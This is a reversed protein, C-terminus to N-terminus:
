FVRGDEGWDLASARWLRVNGDMSGTVMSRGDPFFAVERVPENLRLTGLEQGTAAQWFTVEGCPSAVVLTRGDPSFAVGWASQGNIKLEHSKRWTRTDYIFVTDGGGSVALMSSDASFAVRLPSRHDRLVAVCQPVDLSLDWIRTGDEESTLSFVGRTSALFRRDPSFALGMVVGHHGLLRRARLTNLDWLRVDAGEGSSALSTGDYSFALCGVGASSFDDSPAGDLSTILKRKRIDWVKIHGGQDGSALLDGNRSFAM